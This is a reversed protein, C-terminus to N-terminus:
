RAAQHQRKAANRALKTASIKRGVEHNYRHEVRQPTDRPVMALLARLRAAARQRTARMALAHCLRGLRQDPSRRPELHCRTCLTSM